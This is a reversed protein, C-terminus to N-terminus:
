VLCLSLGTRCRQMVRVSGQVRVHMGGPPVRLCSSIISKGVGLWGASGLSQGFEGAERASHHGVERNRSPKFPYDRRGHIGVRHGPPARRSSLGFLNRSGGCEYPQVGVQLTFYWAQLAAQGQGKRGRAYASLIGSSAPIELWVPKM